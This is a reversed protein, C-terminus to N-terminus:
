EKGPKKVDKMEKEEDPMITAQSLYKGILLAVIMALYLQGAVSFFITLTRATPEVPVIDGYGLTTMTVFSYYIFEAPENMADYSTNFATQSGAYVQSFLISAAIGLLLYVNISELFELVGVKKATAVRILLYVIIYLFFILTLVGTIHRLIQMNLFQTVWTLIMVVFPIYLFRKETDNISLISSFFILTIVISYVYKIHQVNGFLGLVFVYIFTLSFLTLNHVARRYKFFKM